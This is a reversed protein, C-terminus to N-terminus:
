AKARKAPPTADAAGGQDDRAVLFATSSLLLLGDSCGSKLNAINPLLPTAGGPLITIPQHRVDSDTLSPRSPTPSASMSAPAPPLTPSIDCGDAEPSLPRM